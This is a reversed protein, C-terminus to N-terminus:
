EDKEKKKETIMQLVQQRMSESKSRKAKERESEYFEKRILDIKWNLAHLKEVFPRAHDKEESSGSSETRDEPIAATKDGITPPENM